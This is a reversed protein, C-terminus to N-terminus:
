ETECRSCETGEQESTSPQERMEDTQVVIEKGYRLMEEETIAGSHQLMGLLTVIEARTEYPIEVSKQGLIEAYKPNSAIRPDKLYKEIAARIGNVYDVTPKVFESM